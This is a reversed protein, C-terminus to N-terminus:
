EPFALAGTSTTKFAWKKATSSEVILFLKSAADTSIASALADIDQLIAISTGGNSPITSIGTTLRRLFEVDTAVAVGNRLEAGFLGAAEALRVLEDNIALIVVAKEEDIQKGAVQLTSIPTVMTDGITAGSAGVTVVAVRTRLPVRRMSSLMADFAGASSLSEVFASMVSDYEVLPGAWTTSAISGAAVATKFITSIRPVCRSNAALKSAQMVDGHAQVLYRAIAIFEGARHSREAKGAEIIPNLANM